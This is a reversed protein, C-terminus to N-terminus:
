ITHRTYRTYRTDNLLLLLHVDARHAEVFLAVFDVCAIGFAEDGDYVGFCQLYQIRKEMM